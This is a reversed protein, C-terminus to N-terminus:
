GVSRTRLWSRASEIMYELSPHQMHWDLEMQAHQSAVVLREIEGNRRGHFNIAPSKNTIKEAIKVVDRVSYTRGSAINYVFYKQSYNLKPLTLLIAQAVDNVHIFDREPSRDPTSCNNGFINVNENCLLNPILDENKPFIAARLDMGCVNSIRLVIAHLDHSITLSEILQEIALKIKGLPNIPFCPTTETAAGQSINGYVQASSLFIFKKVNEALASQLFFITGILDNCYYKFPDKVTAIVNSSGAAHIICEIREGKLIPQIFGSNGSDGVYFEQFLSTDKPEFFDLGFISHGSSALKLLCHGAIYGSAGTLLINM